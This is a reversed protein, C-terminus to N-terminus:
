QFLNQVQQTKLRERQEKETKPPNTSTEKQLYELMRKIGEQNDPLTRNLRYENWTIPQGYRSKGERKVKSIYVGFKREISRGVERAINSVGYDFYANKISIIKGSLFAQCLAAIQTM